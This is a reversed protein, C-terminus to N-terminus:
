PPAPIPRLLVFTGPPYFAPYAEDESALPQFREPHQLVFRTAVAGSWRDQEDSAYRRMTEDSLVIRTVGYERAFREILAPDFPLALVRKGTLYVLEPTLGVPAMVAEGPPLEQLLRSFGQARTVPERLFLFHPGGSPHFVDSPGPRDNSIWTASLLLCAAACGPALWRAPVAVRELVTTAGLSLLVAFPIVFGMGHWEMLGIAAPTLLLLALLALGLAARRRRPDVFAAVVLTVAAAGALAAPVMLLDLPRRLLVGPDWEALSLGVNMYLSTHAHTFPLYHPQFLSRWVIPQTLEITGDLGAPFDPHHAYVWLRVAPWVLMSAASAALLGLAQPSAWGLARGAWSTYLILAGVSCFLLAAGLFDVRHELRQRPLRYGWQLLVFALLAAPVNLYFM